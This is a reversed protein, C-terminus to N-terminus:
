HRIISLRWRRITYMLRQWGGDDASNEVQEFDVMVQRDAPRRSLIMTSGDVEFVRQSGGLRYYHRILFDPNKM